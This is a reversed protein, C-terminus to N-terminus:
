GRIAVADIEVAAGLPLAAVQLTARAPQPERTFHEAYVRNVRGFDELDALYITTRVVNDLSAGAAELVARLNLLVQRTQEEIGGEVLAGTGPDLPIQGSVFIWGDHEVAQSYPGVPAPAAGARVEKV